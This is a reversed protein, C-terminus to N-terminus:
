DSILTYSRFSLRCRRHGSKHQKADMSSPHACPSSSCSSAPAAQPVRKEPPPQLAHPACHTPPGLARTRVPNLCSLRRPASLARQSCSSRRAITKARVSSQTRPTRKPAFSRSNASSSSSSSAIPARQPRCTPPVTPPSLWWTRSAKPLAVVSAHTNHPTAPRSFAGPALAAVRLRACRLRRHHQRHPATPQPSM